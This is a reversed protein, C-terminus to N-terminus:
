IVKEEFESWHSFYHKGSSKGTVTFHIAHIGANKAGLYDSRYNDGVMLTRSANAGSDKLAHEFFARNPKLCGAEESTYMREFYKGLNSAKVKREQTTKFGNTLLFLRHDKALKDLEELVGEFLNSKEPCRGLYEKSFFDAYETNLKCVGLALEFRNLRLAERHIKGKSYKEWLNDNIRRYIRLFKSFQEPEDGFKELFLEHLTEKSNADFDWITHDLDVFYNDIM